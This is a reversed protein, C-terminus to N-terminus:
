QCIVELNKEKSRLVCPGLVVCLAGAEHMLVWAVRVCLPGGFEECVLAGEAGEHVLAGWVGEHM